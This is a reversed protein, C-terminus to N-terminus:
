HDGRIDLIRIAEAARRAAEVNRDVLEAPMVLRIAEVASSVRVWGTTVAFAGVMATNTVPIGLTDFAIKTANVVGVRTIQPPLNVSDIEKSSNLVMIAGERVGAFVNGPGLLTPDSVIICDPFYIQSKERIPRDDIRVSSLVASGRRETGFSPISHAYLGDIMAAHVIIESAIM